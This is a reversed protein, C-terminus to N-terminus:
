AETTYLAAIRSHHSASCANRRLRIAQWVQHGGVAGFSILAASVWWPMDLLPLGIIFMALTAGGGILAALTWALHPRWPSGAFQLLLSWWLMGLAPGGAFLAIANPIVHYGEVINQGFSDSMMLWFITTPLAGLLAEIVAFKQKGESFKM